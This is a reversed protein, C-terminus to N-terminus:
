PRTVVRPSTPWSPCTRGPKWRRTPASSRPPPPSPTAPESPSRPETVTSFAFDDLTLEDNVYVDVTTDPIGHVVVVSADSEQASAAPVATLPAAAVLSALLLKKM